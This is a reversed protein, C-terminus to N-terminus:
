IRRRNINVVLQRFQRHDRTNTNVEIESYDQWHLGYTGTISLPKERGRTTGKSASAHWSLLGGLTRGEHVRFKADVCDKDRPLNWYSSDNTLLIAYGTAKGNERVFRELREIDAVFDYRGCDQASHNKLSYLEKNVISFLLATKYKLEIALAEGQNFVFIDLHEPQGPQLPYELRMSYTPFREHIEWALSHQFDAESHFVPRKKQLQYLIELLDFM